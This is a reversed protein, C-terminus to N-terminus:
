CAAGSVSPPVGKWSCPPATVSCCCVSKANPCRGPPALRRCNDQRGERCAVCRNRQPCAACQPRRRACLSAGLDMLGQTYIGIEREPLRDVVLFEEGGWRIVVTDERVNEKIRRATRILVEHPGPKDVIVDEIGLPKGPEILIAAKAM